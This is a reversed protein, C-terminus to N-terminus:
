NDDGSEEWWENATDFIYSDDISTEDLSIIEEM